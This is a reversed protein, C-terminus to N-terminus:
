VSKGKIYKLKYPSVFRKSGLQKPDQDKDCCYFAFWFVSNTELAAVDM